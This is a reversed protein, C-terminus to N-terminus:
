ACSALRAIESQRRQVGAPFFEVATAIQFVCDLRAIELVRSVWKSVNMLEFRVGRAQAHERLTLMVGLGAADVTNVQALDLIVSKVEGLSQMAARLSDTEGTVIQGQLSFIAVTELNKTQVKLM